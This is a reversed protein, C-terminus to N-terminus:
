SKLDERIAQEAREALASTNNEKVIEESMVDVTHLHVRKFWLFVKEYRITAVVVPCDALKAIKFFQRGWPIGIITLCLICGM